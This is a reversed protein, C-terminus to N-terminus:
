PVTVSITAPGSVIKLTSGSAAQVVVGDWASSTHTDWSVTGGSGNDVLKDSPAHPKGGTKGEPKKAHSGDEFAVERVLTVGTGTATGAWEFKTGKAAGNAIANNVDGWRILVKGPQGAVSRAELVHGADITQSGLVAGLERHKGKGEAASLAASCALIITLLRIM